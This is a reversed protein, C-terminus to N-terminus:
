ICNRLSFDLQQLKEMNVRKLEMSVHVYRELTIQPSSHGLIESLSKIEFGVEVCRTAFTHRLVHFHVGELDCDKTYNRFRYQLSRPEIYRDVEGTLVFAEPNQCSRQRCLKAALDTMPIFRVAHDSKPESIIIKTRTDANIDLNRIRQMTASVRITRDTLSIDRWRLACVEGIRLGACLALLVGFKCEDMDNLLYRMFRKQEELTLVRMEHRPEKPYVVDIPKLLGPHLRAIHRFVARLVTLIDRVTKPALGSSLLESSFEEIVISSLYQVRYDGLHPIIHKEMIFLYKVYTSEKVKSQNLRLWEDCYFSFRQKQNSQIFGYNMLENKALEAKQKAERYTKGYCYGYIARGDNARCKVYRAEWRNDKRKYINEGRKSM